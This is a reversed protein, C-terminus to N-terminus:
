ITLSKLKKMQRVMRQFQWMYFRTTPSFVPYGLIQSIKDRKDIIVLDPRRAGIEHDTRVSFDWLLKYDDNQLVSEPAHDYWRENREFWMKRVPGM